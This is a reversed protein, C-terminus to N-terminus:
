FSFDFRGDTISVSDTPGNYLTFSFIGSIIRKITDLYTIQFYDNPDFRNNVGGNLGDSYSISLSDFYNGVGNVGGFQPYFYFSSTYGDAGTGSLISNFSLPLMSPGVHAVIGPLIQNNPVWIAGDVKCGFTNLGLHTIPPLQVGNNKACACFFVLCLIPLSAKM